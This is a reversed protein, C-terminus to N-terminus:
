LFVLPTSRRVSAMSRHDVVFLLLAAESETVASLVHANVIYGAAIHAQQWRVQVVLHCHELSM